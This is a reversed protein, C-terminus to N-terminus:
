HTAVHVLDNHEDSWVRNLSNSLLQVVCSWVSLDAENPTQAKKRTRKVLKILPRLALLVSRFGHPSDVVSPQRMNRGVEEIQRWSTLQFKRPADQTHLTDSCSRFVEQVSYCENVSKLWYNIEIVPIPLYSRRM